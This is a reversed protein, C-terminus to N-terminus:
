PAGLILSNFYPNWTPLYQFGPFQRSYERTQLKFWASLDELTLEKRPAKGLTSALSAEPPGPQGQWSFRLLGFPPPNDKPEIWRAAEELIMSAQNPAHTVDLLFLKAGRTEQSGEPTAGLKERIERLPIFDNRDQGSPNTAAPEARTGSTPPIFDNRDQGSLRLRLCPELRQADEGERDLDEVGQYYVIVVDNSPQIRSMAIRQRITRLRGWVQDRDISQDEPFFGYLTASPFAPTKFSGDADLDRGRLATLARVILEQKVTGVGIVLLHLRWSATV